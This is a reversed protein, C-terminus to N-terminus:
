FGLFVVTWLLTFSIFIFLIIVMERNSKKYSLGTAAETLISSDAHSNENMLRNFETVLFNSENEDTHSSLSPLWGSTNQIVKDMEKTSILLSSDKEIRNRKNNKAEQKIKSAIAKEMLKNVTMPIPLQKKKKKIKSKKMACNISPDNM